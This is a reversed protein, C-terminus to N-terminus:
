RLSKSLAHSLKTKVSVFQNDLYKNPYLNIINLADLALLDNKNIKPFNVIKQDPNYHGGFSRTGNKKIWAIQRDNLGLNKAITLAESSSSKSLLGILESHPTILNDSYISLFTIYKEVKHYSCRGIATSRKGNKGTILLDEWDFTIKSESNNTIKAETIIANKGYPQSTSIAKECTLLEENATVAISLTLLILAYIYKVKHRM